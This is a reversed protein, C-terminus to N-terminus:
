LTVNSDSQPFGGRAASTEVRFPWYGVNVGSRTELGGAFADGVPGSGVSRCAADFRRPLLLLAAAGAGLSAFLGRRGIRM